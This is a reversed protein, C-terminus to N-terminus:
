QIASPARGDAWEGCSSLDPRSSIRPSSPARPLSIHASERYTRSGRHRCNISSGAIPIDILM